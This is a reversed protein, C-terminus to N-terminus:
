LAHTLENFGAQREPPLMGGDAEDQQRGDLLVARLRNRGRVEPGGLAGAPAKAPQRCEAVIHALKQRDGVYTRRPRVGCLPAPIRPYRSRVAHTAPTTRPPCGCIIASVGAGAVMRVLNRGNACGSM